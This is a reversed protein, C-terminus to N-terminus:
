REFAKEKSTKSYSQSDLRNSVTQECRGGICVTGYPCRGVGDCPLGCVGGDTCVEGNVCDDSGDGTCPRRCMGGM